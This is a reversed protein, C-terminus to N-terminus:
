KVPLNGYKGPFYSFAGGLDEPDPVIGNSATGGKKLLGACFSWLVFCSGASYKQKMSIMKRHFLFSIETKSYRAVM